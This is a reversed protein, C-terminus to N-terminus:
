LETSRDKTRGGIELNKFELSRGSPVPTQSKLEKRNVNRMYGYFIEDLDSKRRYFLMKLKERNAAMKDRNYELIKAKHDATRLEEKTKAIKLEEMRHHRQINFQSIEFKIQEVIHKRRRDVEM